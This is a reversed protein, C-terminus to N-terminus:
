KAQILICICLCSLANFESIIPHAGMHKCIVMV